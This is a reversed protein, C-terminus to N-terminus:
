KVVYLGPGGKKSRSLQSGYIRQLDGVDTNLLAELSKWDYELDDAHMRLLRPFVTPEEYPFDTEVPERTRWGLASM